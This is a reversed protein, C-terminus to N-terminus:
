RPDMRFLALISERNSIDPIVAISISERYMDDQTVASQLRSCYGITRGIDSQYFRLKSM